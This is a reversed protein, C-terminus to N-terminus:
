RIRLAFSNWSYSTVLYLGVLTSCSGKSQIDVHNQLQPKPNERIPVSNRPGTCSLRGCSFLRHCPGRCSPSECFRPWSNRALSQRLEKQTLNVSCSFLALDVMINSGCSSYLKKAAGSTSTGTRSKGTVVHHQDLPYVYVLLTHRDKTVFPARSFSKDTRTSPSHFINHYLNPLIGALSHATGSQSMHLYTPLCPRRARVILNCGPILTQTDWSSRTCSRSRISAHSSKHSTRPIVRFCAVDGCTLKSVICSVISPMVV